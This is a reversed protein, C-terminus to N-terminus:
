LHALLFLGESKHLIDPLLGIHTGFDMVNNKHLEEEICVVSVDRLGLSSTKMSM